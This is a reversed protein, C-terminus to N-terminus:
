KERIKGLPLSIFSNFIIGLAQRRQFLIFVDTIIDLRCNYSSCPLLFLSTNTFLGGKSKTPREKKCSPRKMSISSEEGKRECNVERNAERVHLLMKGCREEMEM